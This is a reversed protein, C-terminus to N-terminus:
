VKECINLLNEPVIIPKNKDDIQVIRVDTDFANNLVAETMAHRADDFVLLRGQKLVAVKDAVASALNLDHMVLIMTKGAAKLKRVIDIVQKQNYLDLNSTPEDFLILSTQQAVARAISCLQLEGGSIMDLRRDALSTVGVVAMAESVIKEDERSAGIRFLSGWVTRGLMVYQRVTMEARPVHQEVVAMMKAVEKRKANAIDDGCVIVRGKKLPLDSCIAKLLTSKGSGNRGVVAVTEGAEVHFSVNCLVDNGGDYSVTIDEVGVM